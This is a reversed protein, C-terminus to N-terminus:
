YGEAEAVVDKIAEDRLQYIGGYYADRFDETLIPSYGGETREYDLVIKKEVLPAAKIASELSDLLSNESQFTNNADLNKAVSYVNPAYVRLTATAGSATKKFSIVEYGNREEIVSLFEPTAIGEARVEIAPAELFTDLAGEATGANGGGCPGFAIGWLLLCITVACCAAITMWRQWVFVIRDKVEGFSPNRFGGRGPEDGYVAVDEEGESGFSGVPKFGGMAPADGCVPASEEADWTLADMAKFGGVAPADEYVPESEEVEWTLADMAKFGGVAPADGYVPESEEVEWTLEDMAEFGGVAIIDGYIPEDFAPTDEGAKSNLESSEADDLLDGLSHFPDIEQLEKGCYPCVCKDAIDKGCQQCRM